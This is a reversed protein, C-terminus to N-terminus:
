NDTVINSDYNINKSFFHKPDFLLVPKRYNLFDDTWIYIGIAIDYNNILDLNKCFNTNRYININDIRDIENISSSYYRDKFCGNQKSKITFLINPFKKSLRM